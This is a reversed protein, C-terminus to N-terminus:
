TKRKHTPSIHTLDNLFSCIEATIEEEEPAESIVWTDDTTDLRERCIPCTKNNVNRCLSCKFNQDTFNPRKIALPVLFCCFKQIYVVSKM